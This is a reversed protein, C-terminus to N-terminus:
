TSGSSGDTPPGYMAWGIAGSLIWVRGLGRLITPPRSGKVDKGIKNFPCDKLYYAESKMDPIFFHEYDM